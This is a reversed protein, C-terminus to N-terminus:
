KKVNQSFVEPSYLGKTEKDNKPKTGTLLLKLSIDEYPKPIRLACRSIFEMIDEDGIAWLIVPRQSIENPVLEATTGYPLWCYVTLRTEAPTVRLTPTSDTM